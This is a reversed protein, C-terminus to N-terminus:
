DNDKGLINIDGAIEDIVSRLVEIEKVINTKIKKTHVYETNLKTLHLNIEAIAQNIKEVEDPDEDLIKKADSLMNNKRINCDDMMYRINNLDAEIRSKHNKLAELEDLQPISDMIGINSTFIKDMLDNIATFRLGRAGLNSKISETVAKSLTEKGLKLGAADALAYMGSLAMNKNKAIETLDDKSLRDLNGIFNIRGLIQTALGLKQLGEIIGIDNLISVKDGANSGFGISSVKEEKRLEPFNGAFIFCFRDTTMSNKHSGFSGKEKKSVSHGELVKLLEYQCAKKFAVLDQALGGTGVLKDFEDVFIVAYPKDEDYIDELGDMIMDSLSDGVYGSPTITAADIHIVPLDLLETVVTVMETKGCGTPGTLLLHPYIYDKRDINGFNSFFIAQEKTKNYKHLFLAKALALKAADQGKITLDLHEVISKVTIM